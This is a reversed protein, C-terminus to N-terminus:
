AGDAGLVHRLGGELTPHSFAYGDGEAREPVARVSHFLLVDAVEGLLLHPAFRPVPLLAPRGLVMALVRTFEANTVPNPACANVPGRLSESTIAHALLGVEDDLTLWSWYQRGSGFRGGVGLRFLPLLRTLAGGRPTCVIGTRLTVVRVGANRAPEAAAEWAVCVDALFGGGPGSDETLVEDGRDGYYNIGTPYVLTRPGHEMAALTTALLATSGVRSDRVRRRQEATWRRAGISEGALHVVADVERLDEPDLQGAAPDWSIEDEARAARRVARTVRHGQGRLHPVLASGILGSAGTVVVHM